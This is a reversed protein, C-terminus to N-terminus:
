RRAGARGRLLQNRLKLYAEGGVAKLAKKANWYAFQALRTGSRPRIMDAAAAAPTRVQVSYRGLVTCGGVGHSVVAPESTFLWRIGARHAAEAVARSHYGHPVSAVEVAEGLIESLVEASSQWERELAKPSLVSMREPHSCSHSGIVHGRAHLERVQARTLFTPADLFDTTVFFHGRWGLRELLPAIVTYASRGGDDFTLAFPLGAAHSPADTVRVPPATAVAALAALHARFTEAPLKYLAAGGGPFGSEDPDTTSLVDHYLLTALKM